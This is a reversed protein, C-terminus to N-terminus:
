LKIGYALDGADGLGPIIYSNNDLEEDIAGCWIHTGDPLYNRVTEVGAKAAIACVIHIESPLGKTLLAEYALVVSSGTALMPDTLILVKNDISPSAVYEVEVEITDGESHPKRFASIFANEARDFTELMGNHMTLGARLISAIVPQADLLRSPAIGMPTTVDKQFHKLKKSIEYGILSGIRSLNKRFRMPDNQIDVNRLEAIYDSLISYEISLDKVM